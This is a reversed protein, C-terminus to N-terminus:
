YMRLAKFDISLQVPIDYVIGQTTSARGIYITGSYNGKLTEGFNYIPLPPTQPYNTTTGLDTITIPLIRSSSQGAAGIITQFNSFGHTTGSSTSYGGLSASLTGFYTGILNITAQNTGMLLNPLLIQCELNQGSVYNSGTVDNIKLTIVKYPGSQLIDCQNTIWHNVSQTMGQPIGNTTNGKVKHVEGNITITFEYDISNTFSNGNNNTSNNNDSSCSFLLSLITLFLLTKKM